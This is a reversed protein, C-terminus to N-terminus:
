GLKGNRKRSRGMGNAAQHDGRGKEQSEKGRIYEERDVPGMFISQAQTLKLKVEAYKPPKGFKQEFATVCERLKGYRAWWWVEKRRYAPLKRVVKIKM